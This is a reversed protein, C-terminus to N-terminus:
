RRGFRSVALAVVGLAAAILVLAVVGWVTSTQLTIRFEAVENTGEEPMARFTISYDGAVAKEPPKIYATITAEEGPQLAEITDPEFRVDWGAPPSSRMEIDVAPASGSNRLVLEVPSERGATATASLRGDPSTLNLDSKGTIIATLEITESVEASQVRVLIPYEGAPAQALPHVKIDVDETDGAKVPLSALEQGGFAKEVTIDLFEPAQVDFSVLLDQESDNTIKVRYSFNSDPTGKLVPLDAELSLQPPLLEGVILELELQDQSDQGRAAVLIPYSGTAVDEPVMVKLTVPRSSDREVYASHVLRGAGLFSATWGDPLSTVAIDVIQDPLGINEIDLTLSVTEGARVVQSPFSTSIELHPPEEQQPLLGFASFGLLLLAALTNM